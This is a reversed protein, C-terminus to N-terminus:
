QAGPGGDPAPGYLVWSSGNARPVLLPPSGPGLVTRATDPDTVVWRCRADALFAIRADASVPGSLFSEVKRLRIAFDPTVEHHGIFVRAGAFAALFLGTRPAALVGDDGTSERVARYLDPWDADVYGPNDPTCERLAAAVSGPASALVVLAALAVATGRSRLALEPAIALAAFAALAIHVGEICRREFPLIPSAYALLCAVAIWGALLRLAPSWAHERTLRWAGAIALLGPLGFGAVYEWPPPSPMANQRAWAQLMPSSAVQAAALAFSPLAIALAVPVPGRLLFTTWPGEDPGQGPRRRAAVLREIGMSVALALALTLATYPHVQVLLALFLGAPIGPGRRGSALGRALYGLTAAVLALSAAFHPFHMLSPFSWLETMWTDASGVPVGLDHLWGFGSGVAVLAWALAASRRDPLLRCFAAWLAVLFLFGFVARGAHYTAVLSAETARSALGLVMWVPNGLFPEHPDTTMRNVVRLAGDRHEGMWMLYSAEDPIPTSLGSFVRGPPANRDLWAYPLFTAGVVLLAAMWAIANGISPRTPLGKM